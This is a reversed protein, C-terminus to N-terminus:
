QAPAEFAVVKDMNVHHGEDGDLLLIFGAEFIGPCAGRGWMGTVVLHNASMQLPYHEELHLGYPPM